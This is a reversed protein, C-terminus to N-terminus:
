ESMENARVLLETPFTIGLATGTKLNVVVTSLLAKFKPLDRHLRVLRGRWELKPNYIQANTQARRLTIAAAEEFAAPMLVSVGCIFFPPLDCLV